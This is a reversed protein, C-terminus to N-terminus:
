SQWKRNAVLIAVALFNQLAHAILVVSLRRVKAYVFGYLVGWIGTWIAGFSSKYSHGLGFIAASVFVAGWTSNLLLEFQRLLYGRMLIEEGISVAVCLIGFLIWEIQNRPILLCKLVAEEKDTNFLGMAALIMGSLTLFIMTGFCLLIGRVVDWLSPKCIGIEAWPTGNRWVLYLVLALWQVSM